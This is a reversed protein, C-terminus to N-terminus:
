LKKKQIIYYDELNRLKQIMYGVGEIKRKEKKPKLVFLDNYPINPLKINISEAAHYKEYQETEKETMGITQKEELLNKSKESYFYIDDTIITEEDDSFLDNLQRDEYSPIDEMLSINKM